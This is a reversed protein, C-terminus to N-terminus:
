NSTNRSHEIKHICDLLMQALWRYADSLQEGKFSKPPRPISLFCSLFNIGGAISKGSFIKSIDQITLLAEKTEVRDQHDYFQALSEGNVTLLLCTTLVVVLIEIQM